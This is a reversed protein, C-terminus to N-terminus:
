VEEYRASTVWREQAIHKALLLALQSCRRSKCRAPDRACVLPLRDRAKAHPVHTATPLGATTRSICAVAGFVQSLSKM